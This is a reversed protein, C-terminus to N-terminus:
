PVLNVLAALFREWLYSKSFFFMEKMKVKQGFSKNKSQVINKKKESKNDNNGLLM